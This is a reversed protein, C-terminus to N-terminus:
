DNKKILISRENASDKTIILTMIEERELLPEIKEAWEMLCLNGSDFYDEYGIDFVEDISKIRYFDFHFIKLQSQTQYENVISFTPSSVTDIIELENCIARVLTTKGAGMEGELRWLKTTGAFVLIAKALEPLKDLTVQTFLKEM